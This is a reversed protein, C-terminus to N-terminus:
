GGKFCGAFAALQMVQTQRQAQIDAVDVSQVADYFAAFRQLFTLVQEMVAVLEM